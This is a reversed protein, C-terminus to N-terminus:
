AQLIRDIMFQCAATDNVAPFRLQEDIACSAYKKM